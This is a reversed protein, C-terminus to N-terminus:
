RQEATPTWGTDTPSRHHTANSSQQAKLYSRVSDLYVPAFDVIPRRSMITRMADELDWGMAALVALTMMPGRHRGAVCHILLKSRSESLAALAFEIGKQFLEPPKSQFDDDTSNMLVRIGHPEALPRDDVEWTMDIIHTIGARAVAAMKEPTEAWGGLAIRDTIWDIDLTEQTEEVVIRDIEDV